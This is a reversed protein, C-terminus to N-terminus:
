QFSVIGFTRGTVVMNFHLGAEAFMPVVREQFIQLAKGPGSFPNVLVLLKKAPQLRIRGVDVASWVYIWVISRVM